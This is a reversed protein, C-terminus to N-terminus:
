APPQPPKIDAALGKVLLQKIVEDDADLTVIVRGNAVPSPTAAPHAAPTAAVPTDTTTTRQPKKAVHTMYYWAALGGIVLAIVCYTMMNPDTSLKNFDM